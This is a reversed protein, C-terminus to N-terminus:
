IDQDEVWIKDGDALPLDPAHGRMIKLVDIKYIRQVKTEKGSGDKETITRTLRVNRRDGRAQIGVQSMAHGMTIGSEASFHLPGTHGVYGDVLIFRPAYVTVTVSMRPDRYYKSYLTALKKKAEETTLGALEVKDLLKLDATGLKSILVTEMVENEGHVSVLITDLPRLKYEYEPPPDDPYNAPKKLRGAEDEGFLNDYWDSVAVCGSLAVCSVVVAFFAFFRKM